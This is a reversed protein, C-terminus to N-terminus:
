ANWITNHKHSIIVANKEPIKFLILLPTSSFLM